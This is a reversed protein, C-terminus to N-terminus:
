IPSQASQTRRRWLFGALGFAGCGALIVSSPEPAVAVQDFHFDDYSFGVFGDGSGTNYFTVTASTVNPPATWKADVAAFDNRTIGSKVPYNDSFIRTGNVDIIAQAGASEWPNAVGIGAAFGVNYTSNPNVHITQTLSFDVYSFASVNAFAAYKGTRVNVVNDSYVNGYYKYSPVIPIPTNAIAVGNQANGGVTWGSFDGTEFSGNILDARGERAGALFAALAVLRWTAHKM